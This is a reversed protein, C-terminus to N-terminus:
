NSASLAVGRAARAAEPLGRRRFALKAGAGGRGRLPPRARPVAMMGPQAGSGSGQDRFAPM